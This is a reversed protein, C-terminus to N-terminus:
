REIVLFWCHRVEIVLYRGPDKAMKAFEETLETFKPRSEPDVFWGAAFL